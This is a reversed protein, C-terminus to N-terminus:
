PKPQPQVCAVFTASPLRTLNSCHMVGWRRHLEQRRFAFDDRAISGGFVKGIDLLEAILLQPVEMAVHDDHPHDIEVSRVQLALALKRHPNRAETLLSGLHTGGESGPWLVMQKGGVTLM